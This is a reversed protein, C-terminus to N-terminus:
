VIPFCHGIQLFQVDCDRFSRASLRSRANHYAVSRNITPRYVSSSIQINPSIMPRSSCSISVATRAWSALRNARDSLAGTLTMLLSANSSEISTAPGTSRSDERRSVFVRTALALVFLWCCRSAIECRFDISESTVSTSTVRPFRSTTRETAVLVPARRESKPMRCMILRESLSEIRMSSIPRRLSMGLCRKWCSIAFADSLVFFRRPLNLARLRCTLDFGQHRLDRARHM